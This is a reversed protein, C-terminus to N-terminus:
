MEQVRAVRGSAATRGITDFFGKCSVAFDCLPREM